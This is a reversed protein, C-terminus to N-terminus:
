VPEGGVSTQDHALAPCLEAAMARLGLRARIIEAASAAEGPQDYLSFLSSGSGSMRVIRGIAESSLQWIQALKENLSFAPAELDNVLLPLLEEASLSTWSQWDPPASLAMGDGGAGLEDFRKYVAPTPMHIPPLILLAWKPKPCAIPRVIEGRGTCISSPGHFFFPLDSGFKASLEALRAPPLGLHMLHNMAQMVSAGDSSGGGLGAGIPIRKRLSIAVGTSAVEAVAVQREIASAQALVAAAGRAALNTGDCAISPDDCTVGIGPSDSLRLELTDFLGVTVMWSLLPHFGSAAPPGVRLHLNIKAPANVRMVVVIGGRSV